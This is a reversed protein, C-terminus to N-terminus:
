QVFDRKGKLRLKCFLQKSSSQVFFPVCPLSTPKSGVVDQEVSLREAM